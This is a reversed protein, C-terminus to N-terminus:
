TKTIATKKTTIPTSSSSTRRPTTPRISMAIRSLGAAHPVSPRSM